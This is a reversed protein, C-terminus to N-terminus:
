RAPRRGTVRVGGGVAEDAISAVIRDHEAQSTARSLRKKNRLGKEMIGRMKAYERRVEAPSSRPDDIVSTATRAVALDADSIAGKFHQIQQLVEAGSVKSQLNRFDRHPKSMAGHVNTSFPVAQGYHSGFNPHETVADINGMMNAASTAQGSTFFEAADVVAAGAGRERAADFASQNEAEAAPGIGLRTLEEPTMALQRNLVQVGAAPQVPARNAAQSEARAADVRIEDDPSPLISQIARQMEDPYNEAIYQLKQVDGTPLPANPARAGSGEGLTELEAPTRALLYDRNRNVVTQEPAQQPQANQLTQQQLLGVAQEPNRRMLLDTVHALQTDSRRPDLPGENTGTLLQRWEPYDAKAAQSKSKLGPLIHKLANIYGSYPNAM